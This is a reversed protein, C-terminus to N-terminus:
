GLLHLYLRSWTLIAMGVWVWGLTWGLRDTWILRPRLRRFLGLTVVSGIVFYGVVGPLGTSVVHMYTMDARSPDLATQGLFFLSIVLVGTIAATNIVFGPSRALFRFPLRPQRLSLVLTAISWAFVIPTAYLLGHFIGSELWPWRGSFGMRLATLPEMAPRLLGLGVATAVVLAIADALTFRRQQTPLM